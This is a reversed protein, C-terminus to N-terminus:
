QLITANYHQTTKRNDIQIGRPLHVQTQDHGTPYKHANRAKEVDHEEPDDHETPDEHETHDDHEHLDEATMEEDDRRRRSKAMNM